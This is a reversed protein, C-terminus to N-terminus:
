GESNEPEGGDTNERVDLLLQVLDNQQDGLDALLFTLEGCLKLLTYLVAGLFMWGVLCLLLVAVSAVVGKIKLFITLGMGVLVLMLAVYATFILLDSLTRLRLYRSPSSPNYHRVADGGTRFREYYSSGEKSRENRKEAREILALRRYDEEQRRALETEREQSEREEEPTRLVSRHGCKPCDIKKGLYDEPASFRKGCRACSTKVAM